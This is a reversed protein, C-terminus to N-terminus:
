EHTTYLKKVFEKLLVVGILLSQEDIDFACHHHSEVLGCGILMETAEGGQSIVKNMMLTVDESAGFNTNEEIAKIYPISHAVDKIKKALSASSIASESHGVVEVKATCRHMLASQEIIRIAQESMYENIESTEGRTELQMFAEQPIVNRGTGALLKGINVRSAGQSHRPIALLNTVATAAAALANRGREPLLGAHTSEGLIHADIKTSALFKQCSTSLQGVEKLKIGLHFSIFQDVDDLLSTQCMSRAGRTEEEAPQFIIKITGCLQDKMGVLEEVLKIGITMHGDHGCAHMYGSYNSSFGFQNPIHQFEKTEEVEVCDIDCRIALTKGPYKGKIIAVCGTYGGKIKQLLDLRNTLQKAREFFFQEKEKNPLGLRHQKTHIKKGYILTVPLSELREIIKVTTRYECWGPEPFKHFDRRLQKIEEYLSTHNAEIQM